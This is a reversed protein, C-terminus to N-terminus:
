CRGKRTVIWLVQARRLHRVRQWNHGTLTEARREEKVLADCAVLGPTQRVANIYDVTQWRYRGRHVQDGIKALVIGQHKLVRQAETLFPAFLHSNDAAHQLEPHEVGFRGFYRSKRGAETIGPPDFVLVDFTNSWDAPLARFDHHTHADVKPDLDNRSVQYKLGRWMAGKGWTVDLISPGVPAHLRLLLELCEQDRGRLLSRPREGAGSLM